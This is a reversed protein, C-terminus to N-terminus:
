RGTTGYGLPRRKGTAGDIVARSGLPARLRVVHNKYLGADTHPGNPAREIVTVVVRRRGEVARVRVLPYASNTLWWIRLRRGGRLPTYQDWRTRVRRYLHTAVVKVRVKPGYRGAMYERVDRRRTIVEVRVVDRSPVADIVTVHIGVRDLARMDREIRRQLQSLEPSSGAVAAGAGFALAVLVLLM